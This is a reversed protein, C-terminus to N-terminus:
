PVVELPTTRVTIVDPAVGSLIETKSVSRGTIVIHVQYSGPSLSRAAVAQRLTQPEASAAVVPASGDAQPFFWIREGGASPEAYAILFGQRAVAEVRFLILDDTRCTGPPRGSCEVSVVASDGATGGKSRMADPSPKGILVFAAAVAGALVPSGFLMAKRRYWPPPVIRAERLAGDLIREAAPGRLRGRSLLQDLRDRRM